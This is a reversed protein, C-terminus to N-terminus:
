RRSRDRSRPSDSDTEATPAARSSRPQNKNANGYPGKKDDILPARYLVLATSVENPKPKPKDDEGRTRLKSRTRGRRPPPDRSDESDSDSYDTSDWDDESEDSKKAPTKAPKQPAKSVAKDGTQTSNERKTDPHHVVVRPGPNSSAPKRREQRRDVVTINGRNSPVSDTGSDSTVAVDDSGPPGSKPREREYTQLYSRLLESSSTQPANGPYSLAHAGRLPVGPYIGPMGPAPPPAGPYGSQTVTQVPERSGVDPASWPGYPNHPLQSFRPDEPAYRHPMGLGLKWDEAIKRDRVTMMFSRYDSSVEPELSFNTALELYISAEAESVSLARLIMARAWLLTTPFGESYRLNLIDERLAIRSNHDNCFIYKSLYTQLCGQIDGQTEKQLRALDDYIAAPQETGYILAQLCMVETEYDAMSKAGDLATKILPILDPRPKRNFLTPMESQYPVYLPLRFVPHLTLFMGPSGAPTDLPPREDYLEFSLKALMWRLYQRSAVLDPDDQVLSSVHLTAKELLRRFQEKPGPSALMIAETIDLIALTTSKDSADSEWHKINIDLLGLADSEGFLSPLVNLRPDSQILAALVDRCDWIQGERLLDAYPVGNHTDHLLSADCGDWFRSIYVKNQLLTALSQLKIILQARL